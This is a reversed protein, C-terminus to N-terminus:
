EGKEMFHFRPDDSYASSNVLYVMLPSGFEQVDKAIQTELLSEEIEYTRETGSQFFESNQLDEWVIRVRDYPSKEMLISLEELNFVGDRWSRHV